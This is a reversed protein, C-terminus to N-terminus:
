LVNSGISSNSIGGANRRRQIHQQLRTLQVLLCRNINTRCLLCM